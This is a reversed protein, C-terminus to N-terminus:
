GATYLRIWRLLRKCIHRDPHALTFYSYIGLFFLGLGGSLSSRRQPQPLPVDGIGRALTFSIGGFSPYSWM